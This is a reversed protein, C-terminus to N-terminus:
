FGGVKAPVWASIAVSKSRNPVAIVSFSDSRNWVTIALNSLADGLVGAPEPPLEVHRRQRELRRLALV